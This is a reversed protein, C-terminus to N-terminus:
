TIYTENLHSANETGFNISFEVPFHASFGGYVGEITEDFLEM